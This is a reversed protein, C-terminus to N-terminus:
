RARDRCGREGRPGGGREGEELPREEIFTETM